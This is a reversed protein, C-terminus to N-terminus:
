FSIPLCQNCKLLKKKWNAGTKKGLYSYGLKLRGEPTLPFTQPGNDTSLELFYTMDLKSHFVHISNMTLHEAKLTVCYVGVALADMSVESTNALVM